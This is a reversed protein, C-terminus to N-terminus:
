NNEGENNNIKYIIKKNPSNKNSLNIIKNFLNLYNM